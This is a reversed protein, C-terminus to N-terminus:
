ATKTRNYKEVLDRQDKNAERVVQELVKKKEASSADHFFVSFDTTPKKDKSLGM